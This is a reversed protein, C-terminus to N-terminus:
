LRMLFILQNQTEKFADRHFSYGLWLLSIPLIYSVYGLIGMSIDSLYAGFIGASNAVPKVLVAGGTWPDEDPSSTLLSILFVIGLTALLIFITESVIKSRPNKPKHQTTRKNNKKM